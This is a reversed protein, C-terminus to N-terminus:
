AGASAPPDTTERTEIETRLSQAWADEPHTESLDLLEAWLPEKREDSEADIFTNALERVLWERM